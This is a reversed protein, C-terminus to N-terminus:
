EWSLACLLGTVFYECIGNSTCASEFCAEPVDFDCPSGVPVQEACRDGVACYLGRACSATSCDEGLAPPPTCVGDCTAGEPCAASQLCAAGLPVKAVCVGEECFFGSQGDCQFAVPGGAGICPYGGECTGSCAEGAGVLRVPTVCTDSCLPPSVPTSACEADHECAGDGPVLGEAVETCSQPLDRCVGLTRMESLCQEAKEPHFRILEDRVESFELRFSSGVRSDCREVSFRADCCSALADCLAASFDRGFAEYPTEPEEKDSEGCSLAGLLGFLALLRWWTM